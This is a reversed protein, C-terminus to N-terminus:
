ALPITRVAQYTRDLPTLPAIVVTVRTTRVQGHPINEYYAPGVKTARASGVKTSNEAYWEAGDDSMRDSAPVNVHSAGDLRSLVSFHVPEGILSTCSVRHTGYGSARKMVSTVIFYQQASEAELAISQTLRSSFARRIIDFKSESPSAM